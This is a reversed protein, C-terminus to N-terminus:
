LKELLRFILVLVVILVLLWLLVQIPNPLNFNRM